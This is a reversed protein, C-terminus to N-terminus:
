KQGEQEEVNLNGSNGNDQKGILLVADESKFYIFLSM